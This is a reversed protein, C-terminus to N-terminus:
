TNTKTDGKVESKEVVLSDMMNNFSAALETFEDGKRFFVRAKKNGRRVEEMIKRIKHIPGVVKHSLFVGFLFILVLFFLSFAVLQIRFQDFELWLQSKAAEQMPSASVLIDYNERMRQNILFNYITVIIIGPILSLAAAKLQFIPNILLDALKRKKAKQNM